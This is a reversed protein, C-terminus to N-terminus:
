LGVKIALPDYLTLSPSATGISTLLKLRQDGTEGRIGVEWVGLSNEVWITASKLYRYYVGPNGAFQVEGKSIMFRCTLPQVGYGFM